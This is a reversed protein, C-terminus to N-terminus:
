VVAGKLHEIAPVALSQRQCFGDVQEAPGIPLSQHM